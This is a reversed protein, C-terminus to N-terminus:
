IVQLIGELKTLLEYTAKREEDSHVLVDVNLSVFKGTKSAKSQTITYEKEFIAENIVKKLAFKDRGVVKYNWHAPYEIIVQHEDLNVM